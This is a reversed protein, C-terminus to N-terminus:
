TAETELLVDYIEDTIGSLDIFKQHDWSKTVPDITYVSLGATNSGLKLEDPAPLVEGTSRSRHRFHSSGVVSVGDKIALGRLYGTNVPIEFGGSGVVRGGLSDCVWWDRDHFCLSHPHYLGRYVVQGTTINQVYGNRADLWSQTQSEGFATIFTQGEHVAVSNVHIRDQNDGVDSQWFVESKGHWARVISNTGSSAILVSSKDYGCVSHGDKLHEFKVVPAWEGSGDSRRLLGNGQMVAVLADRNQGMLGCIGPYAKAVQEPISIPEINQSELDVAALFIDDRKTKCCNCFSVICQM